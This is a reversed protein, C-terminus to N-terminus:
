KTSEKTFVNSERFQQCFAHSLIEAIEVSHEKAEKEEFYQIELVLVDKPIKTFGVTFIIFSLLNFALYNRSFFTSNLCNRGLRPKITMSSNITMNNTAKVSNKSLFNHSNCIYDKKQSNHKCM